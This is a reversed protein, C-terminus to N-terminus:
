YQFYYQFFLVLKSSDKGRPILSQFVYFYDANLRANNNAAGRQLSNQKTFVKVIIM